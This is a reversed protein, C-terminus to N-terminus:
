LIGSFGHGREFLSELFSSVRAGICRFELFFSGCGGSCVEQLVLGFGSAIPSREGSCELFVMRGELVDNVLVPVDELCGFIKGGGVGTRRSDCVPSVFINPVQNSLNM